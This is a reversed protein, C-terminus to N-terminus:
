PQPIRIDDSGLDYLDLVAAVRYRQLSEVADYGTLELQLSVPPDSPNGVWVRGAMEYRLGSFYSWALTSVAERARGADLSLFFLRCPTGGREEERELNVGTFGSLLDACLRPDCLPIPVEGTEAARWAEGDRVYFKGERCMFSLSEEGGPSDRKLDLAFNGELFSGECHEGGGTSQGSVSVTSQVELRYRFAESERLRQLSSAVEERWTDEQTPIQKGCGAPFAVLLSLLLALPPFIRRSEM